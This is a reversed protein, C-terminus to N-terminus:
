EEVEVQGTVRAITYTDLSEDANLRYGQIQETLTVIRVFGDTTVRRSQEDWALHESYLRKEDATVVHVNGQAEFRQRRDFYRLQDATMFASPEGAEDYLQVEVRVTDSSARASDPLPQFLAYSSDAQDYRALYPAALRARPQADRTVLLTADWSEQDPREELDLDAPVTASDRRCGALAVALVLVAWACYRPWGYLRGEDIKPPPAAHLRPVPFWSPQPLM